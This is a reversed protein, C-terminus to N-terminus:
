GTMKELSLGALKAHYDRLAVLESLVDPAFGKRDGRDDLFLCAIYSSLAVPDEWTAAFVNAIRPYQRLLATPKVSSPLSEVWNLTRPLPVSAPTTKRRRKHEEVRAPDPPKVSREVGPKQSYRGSAHVDNSPVRMDDFKRYTSV